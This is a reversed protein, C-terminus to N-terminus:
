KEAPLLSNETKVQEWSSCLRAPEYVRPVRASIACTVDGPATGNLAGLEMASVEADGDTGLLVAYDGAKVEPLATVDAMLYDM